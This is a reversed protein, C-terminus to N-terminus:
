GHPTILADLSCLANRSVEPQSPRDPKTQKDIYPVGVPVFDPQMLAADLSPITPPVFDLLLRFSLSMPMPLRDNSSDRFSLLLTSLM